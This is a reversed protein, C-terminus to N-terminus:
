LYTYIAHYTCSINYIYIDDFSIYQIEDEDSYRMYREESFGRSVEIFAAGGHFMMCWFFCDKLRAGPVQLMERAAKVSGTSCATAFPCANPGALMHADAGAELLLRVGQGNDSVCAWHLAGDGREDKANVLAKLALLKRLASNNRFCAALHLPKM